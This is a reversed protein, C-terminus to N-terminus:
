FSLLLVLAALALVPLAIAAGPLIRRLRASADQGSVEDHRGFSAERDGFVRKIARALRRIPASALGATNEATTQGDPRGTMFFLMGGPDESVIDDAESVPPGPNEGAGQQKERIAALQEYHANEERCLGIYQMELAGIKRKLNRAERANGELRLRDLREWLAESENALRAKHERIRELADPEPVIEADFDRIAKSLMGEESPM